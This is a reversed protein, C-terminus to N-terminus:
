HFKVQIEISSPDRKTSTRNVIIEKVALQVFQKKEEVSMKKWNKHMDALLQSININISINQKEESLAELEKLLMKEKENEENMRNKFDEDSIMENVWAYQWKSRRNEVQKLEKKISEIKEKNDSQKEHKKITKEAEQNIDWQSITKLFRDEIYSQVISHNDCLGIAKGRCIYSYIKHTEDGRKSISWKGIMKNGCRACTLVGSFIFPSTARRPHHTKRKNVIAQVRDFEEKTIIAPAANEVEFYQENNVRYNYRITGIYIPNTLIYKISNDNFPKGAKTKLNRENLIAAIKKMGYKGSLYLRFIEKVIVAESENLKLYDGDKDYGFPPISIVFKGEKAKEQMGMRVREGLNEREWQALAAVLTIFLRGTATTTDYIETASKFKVEYKEFINLLEYLDLVSRTLRDLRYVLVCDFAKEKVGKILRNLEPRNMDKASIGEDVYFGVIEWGQSIAYAELRNKQASISYGEQAQEETSVRIYAAVKM